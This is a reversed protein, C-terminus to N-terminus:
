EEYTLLVQLRRAGCRLSLAQRRYDLVAYHRQLPELGLVFAQSASPLSDPAEVHLCCGPALRLAVRPMITRCGGGGDGSPINRRAWEESIAFNRSGTDVLVTLPAASGEQHVRFTFARGEDQAPRRLLDPRHVALSSGGPHFAQVMHGRRLTSVDLVFLDNWDGKDGGEPFVVAPTHVEVSGALVVVVEPLPVVPVTGSGMWTDFGRAETAEGGHVLGLTRALPMSLASVTSGSDLCVLCPRGRVTGWVYNDDDVPITAYRALHPRKAPVAEPVVQLVLGECAAPAARQGGAISPSTQHVAM